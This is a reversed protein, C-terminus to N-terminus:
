EGVPLLLEVSYLAAAASSVTVATEAMIPLVSFRPSGHTLTRAITSPRTPHAHEVRETREPLLEQLLEHLSTLSLAAATSVNQQLETTKRSIYEGREYLFPTAALVILALMTVIGIIMPVSKAYAAPLSSVPKTPLRSILQQAVKYPLRTGTGPQQEVSKEQPVVGTRQTDPVHVFWQAGVKVARLSGDRCRKRVTAVSVGLVTAAKAVSLFVKGNARYEDKRM